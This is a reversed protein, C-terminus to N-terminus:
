SRRPPSRYAKVPAATALRLCARAFALVGTAHVSLVNVSAGDAVIFAKLRFPDSAPRNWGCDVTRASEYRANRVSAIERSTCDGNPYAFHAVPLGLLSELLRKSDAIEARCSEGSCNPLIAHFSGHSGFEVHPLMDTMESLNLAQRDPYLREPDYGTKRKLSALMRDHPLTKLRNVDPHGTKWWFHRNTNVVHSTLFITPCLDFERFLPLLRVNGRYGDDFTIALAYDPLRPANKERWASVIRSLPVFTYLSSLYALHNRLVSPSPDHYVLITAARRAFLRRLVLPIGFARLFASVIERITRAPEALPAM